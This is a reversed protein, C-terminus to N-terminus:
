LVFWAEVYAVVGGGFEGGLGEGGAGGWVGVGEVGVGDGFGRPLGVVFGTEARM